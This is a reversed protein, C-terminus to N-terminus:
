NLSDLPNQIKKIQESSIHTYMQTTSLSSHGLLSQIMRIDVGNELLHTAFSNHSIFGDTVLNHNKPVGFDYVVSNYPNSEIKKVKLWKITENECLNKLILATKELGPIREIHRVIKLLTEKTPNIKGLYRTFHRIGEENEIKYKLGKNENIIPNIKALIKCAPVKEGVFRNIIFFKKLTPIQKAFELQDPRHLIGLTYIEHNHLIKGQPLKVDRIRKNLHSDIGLRLLLMQIDKLLEKSASFMRVSGENGEADYYGALFAKIEEDTASFLSEPVRREKAKKDFGISRFYEVNDKSYINLSYSERDTFKTIGAKIKLQRGVVQQYFELNNINKDFIILGRRRESAVGDGLAYGILRWLEPELKRKGDVNIKKAGLVYVGEKLDKAYIEAIGNEGLTFLRHEPTCQLEYGDAWIFLLVDSDYQFKQAIEENETKLNSFNVSQIQTNRFKFLVEASCIEEPMAIRTNPHLCHRLTHPTVKKNIGARKKVGFIIKQINRTTLPKEKSFVYEHERGELYKKIDSILNQSLNFLRDKSGKGKRVWGTNEQLNIDSVKLNVLESVRLGSSYLLSIILRSKENDAADIISKVEEKTLVSPLTKDKKPIKVKSFEKNLIEKYFFKIAAAALMITNKSKSEFLESLYLKADDENLDQVPKNIRLLFKEVFFSYNRVTLQSFGRLKLETKIKELDEM